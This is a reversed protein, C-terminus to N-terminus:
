PTSEEPHHVHIHTTNPAVMRLGVIPARVTVRTGKRFRRAAAECQSHQGAPFPQEAHLRNRLPNNLEIEMCLVPVVHGEADLMKTRVEAHAVLTGTFSAEPDSLLRAQASTNM